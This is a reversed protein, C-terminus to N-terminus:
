GQRGLTVMREGLDLFRIDVALAREYWQLADDVKGQGELARGLWYILGIKKDDAGPLADVARRLVAEAIGPRGKEYFSIGLAESAKLRDAPARLAKQFQAIAEDLLGMEKFAIGLDYHAQYDDSDLNAEIGRKFQALTERFDQDEDGSPDEAEIRMRTDRDPEEELVLAGLDVFAGDGQAEPGETTPALTAIAAEAVANGPDHESVRQYVTLANDVAGARVLSDALALYTRVLLAPDGSHYALEVRKQYRATDDPELRLLDASAQLADEWRAELEHLRVLDELLEIGGARNGEELLRFAERRVATPDSRDLIPEDLSEGELSDFLADEAGPVVPISPLTEPTSDTPEDVSVQGLDLAGTMGEVDVVEPLDLDTAEVAYEVVMDGPSVVPLEHVSPLDVTPLADLEVTPVGAEEPSYSCDTIIPVDSGAIATSELGDIVHGSSPAGDDAVGAPEPPNIELHRERPVTNEVDMRDVESAGEGRAKSPDLETAASTSQTVWSGASGGMGTDLFVLGSGPSVTPTLEEDDIEELRERTRKAGPADGISELQGALKELQEKAEETRSAARLLESLMLRIDQNGSFSDAFAKVAEFADELRGMAHMREVYELLNRKSEPIVNKRAHLQALRLYTETRGPNVRLIKGCLAIANNFFGQDAYLEAAQEYARLAAASDGAKMELDGVKNYLSPDVTETGSGLGQIAKLYIEIARRWDEKQEFRRAQEKLKDLNM